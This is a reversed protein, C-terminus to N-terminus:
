FFYQGLLAVVVSPGPSSAWFCSTGLPFLHIFMSFASHHSHLAMSSAGFCILHIRFETRLWRALNKTQQKHGHIAEISGLRVAITGFLFLKIINEHPFRQSCHHQTNLIADKSIFTTNSQKIGKSSSSITFLMDGLTCGGALLQYSINNIYSQRFWVSKLKAKDNARKQSVPFMGRNFTTTSHLHRVFCARCRKSM